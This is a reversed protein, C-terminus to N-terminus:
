FENDELLVEIRLKPMESWDLNTRCKICSRKREFFLNNCCPCRFAIGEINKLNLKAETNGYDVHSDYIGSEVEDAIDNLIRLQERLRRAFAESM